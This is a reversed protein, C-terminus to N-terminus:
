AQTGFKRLVLSILPIGPITTFMALILLWGFKEDITNGGGAIIGLPFLLIGYAILVQTWNAGVLGKALAIPVIFYIGLFIALNKIQETM